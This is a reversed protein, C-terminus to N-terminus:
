AARETLSGASALSRWADGSRDEARLAEISRLWRPDRVFVQDGQFRFETSRELRRRAEEHTM